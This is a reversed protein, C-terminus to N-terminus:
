AALFAALQKTLKQEKKLECEWIIKVSWGMKRLLNITKKDRAQNNQIKKTWYVTNSKPIRAGRKCTHGHWFCGHVFILKQLSRFVLDPKGPLRADNLRYRFGLRFVLRRV